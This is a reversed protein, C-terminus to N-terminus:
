RLISIKSRAAATESDTCGNAVLIYTGNKLTNGNDDVLDCTSKNYGSNGNIEWKKRLSGSFDYISLTVAAAKNLSFGIKIQSSTAPNPFPLLQSVSLADFNLAVVNTNPTPAPPTDVVNVSSRDDEPIPISLATLLKNIKIAGYGMYLDRSGNGAIQNFLSKVQTRSMNPNYSLLRSIIGTALATSQSTGSLFAYSNHPALSYVQSGYCMFDLRDGWNSFNSKNGNRDISGISLVGDYAAPYDIVSSNLNGAAAVLIIGKALAENVAERLFQGNKPYGWSCNLVKAGRDIAYYIAMAADLQTGYGRENLFKIDLIKVKPNIGAIGIGNNADAGIIGALHTGHGYLDAPDNKGKGESYGTFDYGWYDDVYGNGDDDIGNIPDKENVAVRDKIDPHTYDVGSDIVAVLVAENAPIAEFGLMFPSVLYDQTNVFPDNFRTSQNEIDGNIDVYRIGSQKQIAETVVKTDATPATTAIFYRFNRNGRPAISLITIKLVGPIKEFTAAQIEASPTTVEQKIILQEASLLTTGIAFSAIVAVFFCNIKM